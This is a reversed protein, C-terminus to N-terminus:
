GQEERNRWECSRSNSCGVRTIDGQLVRLHSFDFSCQSWEGPLTHRGTMWAPGVKHNQWVNRVQEESKPVECSRHDLRPGSLRCDESHVICM